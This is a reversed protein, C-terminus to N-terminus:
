KTISIIINIILALTMVAWGIVKRSHEDEDAFIVTQAGIIWLLVLLNIPECAM